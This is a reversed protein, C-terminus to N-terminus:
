EAEIFKDPIFCEIKVKVNINISDINRNEESRSDSDISIEPMKAIFGFSKLEEIVKNIKEEAQKKLKIEM